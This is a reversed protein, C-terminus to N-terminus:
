CFCEGETEKDANNKLLEDNAM